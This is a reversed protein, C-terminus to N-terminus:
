VASTGAHGLDVAVAPFTLEFHGATLHSLRITM